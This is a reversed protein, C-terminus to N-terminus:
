ELKKGNHRSLPRQTLNPTSRVASDRFQTLTRWNGGPLTAMRSVARIAGGRTLKQREALGRTKERQFCSCESNRPYSFYGIVPSHLDVDKASVRLIILFSDNDDM